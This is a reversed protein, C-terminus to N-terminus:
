RKLSRTFTVFSFALVSFVGIILARHSAFNIVGVRVFVILIIFAVLAMSAMIGPNKPVGAHNLM